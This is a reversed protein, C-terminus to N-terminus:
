QAGREATGYKARLQNCISIAGFVDHRVSDLSCDPNDIMYQLSSLLTIYRPDNKIYMVLESFGLLENRLGTMYAVRSLCEEEKMPLIKFFKDVLSRFYRSVLEHSLVQGNITEISM